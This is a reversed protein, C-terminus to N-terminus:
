YGDAQNNPKIESQGTTQGGEHKHKKLIEQEM